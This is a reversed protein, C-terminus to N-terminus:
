FISRRQGWVGALSFEAKNGCIDKAGPGKIMSNRRSDGEGGCEQFNLMEFEVKASKKLGSM